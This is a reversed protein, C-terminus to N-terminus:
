KSYLEVVLQERVPLAIDAREPLRLVEGRFEQRNLSLWAPIERKETKELNQSALVRYKEKPKVEIAQGARVQYSPIDVPRGGVRFCGHRVMQRAQDRSLAFGLRFVVNDLRTELMRVLYDGTIGKRKQARGFIIRFQREMIGYMRRLRQKERLQEAYPSQKRRRAGHMGPAPRGREIACKVTECRTGKLFLKMGEQRCLRCAPGTYRAM